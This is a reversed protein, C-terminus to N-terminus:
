PVVWTGTFVSADADFEFQARYHGDPHLHLWDIRDIVTRVVAFHRRGEAVDEHSLDDTQVSAPRGDAPADIPTGPGEPRVYIDLSSPPQGTWMEDAVEDDVHLTATGHLRLQERTEANWGHWAIRKNARLHDVKQSRRDTHFALRRQERDAARLVVTRHHPTTGQVTGFAMTRFPHGQKEAARRLRRWVLDHVDDLTTLRDM